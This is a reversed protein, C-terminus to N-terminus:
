NSARGSVGSPSLKGAADALTGVTIQAALGFAILGLWSAASRGNFSPNGVYLTQLGTVVVLVVVLGIGIIWYRDLLRFLGREKALIHAHEEVKALRSRAQSLTATRDVGTADAKLLREVEELIKRSDEVDLDVMADSAERLLEQATNQVDTDGVQQVARVLARYRRRLRIMAGLPDNLLRVLVGIIAGVTLAWIAKFLAVTDDRDVLSVAVGVQYLPGSDREIVIFQCYTGGPVQEPKWPDATVTVAIGTSGRLEASLNVQEAPFQFAPAETGMVSSTSADTRIGARICESGVLDGQLSASVIAPREEPPAVSDSERGERDACAPDPANEQFCADVLFTRTLPERDLGFSMQIPADVQNPERLPVWLALASLILLAGIVIIPTLNQRISRGIVQIWQWITNM